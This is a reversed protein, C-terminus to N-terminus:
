GKADDIFEMDTNVRRGGLKAARYEEDALREDDHRRNITLIGVIFFHMIGIAVLIMGVKTSTTEIAKEVTLVQDTVKLMFSIAGFNVLYFGVILLHSLAEALSHDGKRDATLLVLGQRRLTRGVWIAIGVTLVLYAVYTGIIPTM